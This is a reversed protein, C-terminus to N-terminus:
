TRRTLILADVGSPQYYGRRGGTQRFGHRAYLAQAAENDARVELSVVRQRRRAAEALLAELLRTGLGGRQASPAVAMTQVWAEDPYDCLGAYGVPDEGDLAILYHRTDVQGLETWFTRATWCEAGFLAAEIPLLADIHWWRLRELRTM